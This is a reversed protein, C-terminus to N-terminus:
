SEDAADSTYLLCTDEIKEGTMAAVAIPVDQLSQERKQATVIVEELMLQQAMLPMAPVLALALAIPTVHHQTRPSM